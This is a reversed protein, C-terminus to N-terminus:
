ISTCQVKVGQQLPRWGNCADIFKIWSQTTWRVTPVAPAHVEYEGSAFMRVKQNKTYVTKM